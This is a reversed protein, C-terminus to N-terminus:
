GSGITCFESVDIEISYVTTSHFSSSLVSTTSVGRLHTLLGRHVKEQPMLM